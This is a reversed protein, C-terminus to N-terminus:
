TYCDRTKKEFNLFRRFILLLSRQVENFAAAAARREELAASATVLNLMDNIPCPTPLTNPPPLIPSGEVMLNALRLALPEIGLEAAAHEMIAELMAHGNVMGPARVATHSHIHTRVGYPAFRLAPVNYCSQGFIVAFASDVGNFNWGGDAYLDSEVALIKRQSDFGIQCFFSYIYFLHEAIKKRM